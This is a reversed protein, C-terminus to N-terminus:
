FPSPRKRRGRWAQPFRCHRHLKRGQVGLAEPGADFGKGTEGQGVDGPRAARERRQEVFRAGPQAAFELGRAQRGAQIGAAVQYARQGPAIGRALGDGGARMAVGHHCPATEVADDAHQGADFHGVGQALLAHLQFMGELDDVEQGLLGAVIANGADAAARETALQRGVHQRGAIGFALREGGADGADAAVGRRQARRQAARVAGRREDFQM